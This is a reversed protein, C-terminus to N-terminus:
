LSWAVALNLWFRQNSFAEPLKIWRLSKRGNIQM